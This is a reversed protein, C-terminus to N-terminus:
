FKKRDALQKIESEFPAGTALEKYPSSYIQQAYQMEGEEPTHGALSCDAEIGDSPKYRTCYLGRLEAVGKWEKMANVASDVLWRLKQNNDVFRGLQVAIALKAGAGQPFYPIAALEEVAANLDKKTM